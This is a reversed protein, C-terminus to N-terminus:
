SLLIGLFSKVLGFYVPGLQTIIFFLLGALHVELTRFPITSCWSELPELNLKWCVQIYLIELVYQDLIWGLVRFDLWYVLFQLLLLLFSLSVDVLHLGVVVQSHLDQHVANINSSRSTLQGKSSDLKGHIWTFALGLSVELQCPVPQALDM